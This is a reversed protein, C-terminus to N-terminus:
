DKHYSFYTCLLLYIQLGLFIYPLLHYLQLEFSYFQSLELALFYLLILVIFFIIDKKPGYLSSKINVGCLALSLCLFYLWLLSIINEIKEIFNFLKIEKLLVYEPYRYAKILNPGLVSLILVGLTFLLLCSIMYNKKFGVNELPVFLFLYYPTSIFMAVLFAGKLISWFDTTYVPLFSNIHVSPIVGIFVVVLLFLAFVFLLEALKGVCKYGSRGIKFVLFPIPLSLFWIPSNPLYFSSAFTQFIFLIQTYLFGHIVVSSISWLFPHKLPYQYTRKKAKELLFIFIYGLFFGLLMSIWSDKGTYSFLLSYGFGLCFTEGLFFSLAYQKKQNM